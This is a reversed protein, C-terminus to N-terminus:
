AVVEALTDTGARVRAGLKVSVRVKSAPLVVDVRSGFAIMGMRDGKRCPSGAGKWAICRRAVLGTIQVVEVLGLPTGFLYRKQSNGEAEPSFAPRKPGGRDDVRVLYGPFPVRNVHVNTVNMFTAIRLRGGEQRVSLVRGDAAAVIGKGPTREPDRFFVLFLLLFFAAAALPLLLWEVRSSMALALLLLTAGGSVLLLPVGTRAWM